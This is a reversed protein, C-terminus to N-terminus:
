QKEASQQQLMKSAFTNQNTDDQLLDMEELSNSLDLPVNQADLETEVLKYLADRSLHLLYFTHNPDFLMAM